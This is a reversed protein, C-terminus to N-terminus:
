EHSAVALGFGTRGYGNGNYLMYREGGHEFVFPYEIMESDWGEEAVAIGAQALDLTWAGGDPSSAYGIRYAPGSGSRYSFWMHHRGTADVLVTPRSFAQATGIGYPIAVDEKRWHKGDFSSARKIVHVMEGNGGDWALTSGYWMAYGHGGDERVVWPYSLSATDDHDLPLFPVEGDLSLGLDNDVRLRGIEGYWHAGAPNRWGMFLMFRGEPTEYCNGISVGDAFFSGEAGHVFVPEPHDHM